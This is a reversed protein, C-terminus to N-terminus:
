AKYKHTHYLGAQKEFNSKSNILNLGRHVFRMYDVGNDANVEHPKPNFGQNQCSCFHTRPYPCSSVKVKIM